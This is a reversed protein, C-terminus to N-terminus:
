SPTSPGKSLFLAIQHSYKIALVGVVIKLGSILLSDSIHDNINSANQVLQVYSKLQIGFQPITVAILVFGIITSAIQYINVKDIMFNNIKDSGDKKNTVRVVKKTRFILVGAFLATVLFSFISILFMPVHGLDGESIKNQSQLLVSAYMLVERLQGIVVVVLYLGLVKVAIEYIDSKQM